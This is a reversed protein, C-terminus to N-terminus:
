ASNEALWSRSAVIADECSVYTRDTEVKESSWFEVWWGEAARSLEIARGAREAYVFRAAGDGRVTTMATTALRSAVENLENNYDDITAM